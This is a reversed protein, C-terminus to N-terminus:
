DRLEERLARFIAMYVTVDSTAPLHVHIDHHLSLQGFDNAAESSHASTSLPVAVDAVIEDTNAPPPASWDAKATLAKFTQAMKQGASDGAGTLSKFLDTLQAVTRDPARQDALFVEPWGARLGQALAAGGSTKSRFANYRETPSGDATLFGLQKLVKLIGRDGSGRFGLSTKLFEVTFKPPTGADQIRDLIAGINGVTMMYPIETPM